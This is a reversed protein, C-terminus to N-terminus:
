PNVQVANVLSGVAISAPVPVASGAVLSTGQGASTVRLWAASRGSDSVVQAAEGPVGSSYGYVNRTGGGASTTMCGAGSPAAVTAGNVISPNVAISTSVLGPVAVAANFCAVAYRAAQQARTAALADAQGVVGAGPVAQSQQQFMALLGLGVAIAAAPLLNYGGV